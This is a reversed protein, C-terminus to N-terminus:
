FELASANGKWNELLFKSISLYSVSELTGLPFGTQASHLLLFAQQRTIFPPPSNYMCVPCEVRPRPAYSTIPSLAVSFYFQKALLWLRGWRKTKKSPSFFIVPHIESEICFSTIRILFAILASLSFLSSLPQMCCPSDRHAALAIPLPSTLPNGGRSHPLHSLFPSLPLVM